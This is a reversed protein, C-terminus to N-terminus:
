EYDTGKQQTEKDDPNLSEHAKLAMEQDKLQSEKAFKDRELELKGVEIFRKTEEAKVKLMLEDQKLKEEAEKSELAQQLEQVVGQMQELAAKMQVAEPDEEDEKFMPDLQKKFRDALISAGNVDSNEFMVDGVMPLIEPNSRVLESMFKSSEQKMTISAPGTTVRADFEGNVIDFTEEQGEVIAGNIGAQKHEGTKDIYGVVRSTDYVSKRASLLIRGVHTISKNCNDGFHLTAMNGENQRREIAIGSTENSRMGLSAAYLGMSAKIDDASARRENLIGVPVPPPALIYPAPLPSGSEDVHDYLLVAQGNPNKWAEIYNKVSDAVAVTSILPARKLFEAATDAWYNYMKQSDHAPRHLSTLYRKGSRWMEKGYVPVIPIYKGPFISEELVDEGSLLYCRVTSEKIKRVNKYEIGEVVDEINGDRVGRKKSTTEIEYYRCINIYEEDKLEKEKEEGFNTATKSPYEKGFDAVLMPEFIMGYKSDRADVEVSNHDIYISFPDVVRRIFFTQEFSEDNIYDTEVLIFGISCKIAFEVAMDYADDAQSVYEIKKIMGKLFDATERSSSEDSPIVNITPTNLKLDNVVQHIFQGIQDIQLAPSNGKKAGEEWQSLPDGSIFDLDKRALDYIHGWHSKAAEYNKKAREIVTTMTQYKWIYM